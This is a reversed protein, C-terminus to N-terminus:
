ARDLARPRLRPDQGSRSSGGDSAADDSKMWVALQGVSEFGARHAADLSEGSAYGVVPLTGWRAQAAAAGGSWAAELDGEADFVNSLGIVTASRNAVAGARILNRDHRALVAVSENALLTSEFFRAPGSSEGWAAEWPELQEAARIVSWESSVLAETTQRVLWEADFLVAFGAATLDLDRFSDKVSCGDSADVQALLQGWDVEPVLTVADAYLPPTRQPSAWYEPHFAAALGHTRCFVDCWEANNRAAALVVSLLAM